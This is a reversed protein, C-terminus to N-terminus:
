CLFQYVLAEVLDLSEGVLAGLPVFPQTLGKSFPARATRLVTASGPASAVSM